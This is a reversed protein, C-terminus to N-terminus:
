DLLLFYVITIKSTIPVNNLMERGNCRERSGLRMIRRKGCIKKAENSEMMKMMMKIREIEKMEKVNKKMKEMEEEDEDPM